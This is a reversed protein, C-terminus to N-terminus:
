VVYVSGNGDVAIGKGNTVANNAGNTEIRNTNNHFTNDNAGAATFRSVFADVTNGNTKTGTVYIRGTGDLAIAQGWDDDNGGIKKPTFVRNGTKDLEVLFADRGGNSQLTATGSGPGFDVTGRFSGTVYIGGNPGIVVGNAQDDASAANSHFVRAWILAGTST